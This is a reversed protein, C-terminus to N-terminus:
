QLELLRWPAALTQLEPSQPFNMSTSGSSSSGRFASSPSTAYARRGQRDDRPSRHKAANLTRDEDPCSHGTSGVCSASLSGGPSTAQARRAQRRERDDLPSWRKVGSLTHDEDLSIRGAAVEAYRLAAKMQAVSGVEDSVALQRVLSVSTAEPLPCVEQGHSPRPVRLSVPQSKVPLHSTTHPTDTVHLSISPPLWKSRLLDHARAIDSIPPHLHRAHLAMIPTLLRLAAENGCMIAAAFATHGHGNVHEVDVRAKLLATVVGECRRCGVASHLATNGASDLAEVDAGGELLWWVVAMQGAAAASHLPTANAPGYRHTPLAPDDERFLQLAPLHGGKAAGHVLHPLRQVNLAREAKWLAKVVPLAGADALAQDLPATGAADRLTVDAQHELLVNVIAPDARGAAYHLASRGSFTETQNVEAGCDLVAEVMQRSAHLCAEHLVPRMRLEPPGTLPVGRDLMRVVERTNDMKIAELLRRYRESLLEARSSICQRPGIPPSLVRRQGASAVRQGASAVRVRQPSLHRHASRPVMPTGQLARVAYMRREVVAVQRQISAWQRGEEGALYQRAQIEAGCLAARELECVAESAAM